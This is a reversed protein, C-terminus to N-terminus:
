LADDDDDAAAAELRDTGAAATYVGVATQINCILRQTHTPQVTISQTWETQQQPARNDRAATLHCSIHADIAVAFRGGPTKAGM